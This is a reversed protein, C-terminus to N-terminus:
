VVSFLEFPEFPRSEAFPFPHLPLAPFPPLPDIRWPLALLRVSEHTPLPSLPEARVLLAVNETDDELLLPLPSAFLLPEWLLVFVIIRLPLLADFPFPVPHGISPLLGVCIGVFLERCSSSNDDLEGM